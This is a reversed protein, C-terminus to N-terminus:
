GSLARGPWRDSMPKRVSRIIVGLLIPAADGCFGVAFVGRSPTRRMPM